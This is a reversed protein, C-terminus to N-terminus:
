EAEPRRAGEPDDGGSREQGRQRDAGLRPRDDGHGPLARGPIRAVAPLGAVGLHVLGAHQGEVAGPRHVDDVREVLDDAADAGVADDGGQGAVGAPVDGAVVGVALGVEGSFAHRGGLGREAAGVGGGHGGVAVEEDGVAGVVHDPPHVVAGADDRGHHPLAAM